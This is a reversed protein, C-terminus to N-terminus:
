SEERDGRLASAKKEFMRPQIFPSMEASLHSLLYKSDRTHHLNNCANKVNKANKANRSFQYSKNANIPEGM